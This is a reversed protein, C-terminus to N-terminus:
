QEDSVRLANNPLVVHLLCILGQHSGGQLDDPDEKFIKEMQYVGPWASALLVVTYPIRLVTIAESIKMKLRGHIMEDLKHLRIDINDDGYGHATLGNLKTVYHLAVDQFCCSTHFVRRMIVVVNQLMDCQSFSLSDSDHLLSTRM